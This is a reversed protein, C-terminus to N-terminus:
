QSVVQGRSQCSSSISVHHHPKTRSKMCDLEHFLNTNCVYEGICLLYYSLTTCSQLMICAFIFHIFVTLRDRKWGKNNLTIRWLLRALQNYFFCLSFCSRGWFWKFHGQNGDVFLHNQLRKSIWKSEFGEIQLQQRWTMFVVQLLHMSSYIIM